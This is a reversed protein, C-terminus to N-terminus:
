YPHFSRLLTGSCLNPPQQPLHPSTLENYANGVVATAWDICHGWPPLCPPVRITWVLCPLKDSEYAVIVVCYAM